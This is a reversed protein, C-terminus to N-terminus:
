DGDTAVEEHKAFHEEVPTRDDVALTADITVTPTDAHARATECYSTVRGTLRLPEGCVPCAVTFTLRTEGLDIGAM